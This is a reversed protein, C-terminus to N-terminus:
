KQNKMTEALQQQFKEDQESAVGRQKMEALINAARSSWVRADGAKGKRQQLDSMQWTAIWELRLWDSNGRDKTLLTDGIAIAQLLLPECKDLQSQSSYARVLDSCTAMLNRQIIVNAAYTSSLTEYNTRAIEIAKGANVWQGQELLVRGLSNQAYALIAIENDTLRFPLTTLLSVSKQYADLAETPKGLREMAVAYRYYGGALWRTVVGNNVAPRAYSEMDILTAKLKSTVELLTETLSQKKDQNSLVVDFV